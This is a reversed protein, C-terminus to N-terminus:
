ISHVDAIKFEIEGIVRTRDIEIRGGVKEV